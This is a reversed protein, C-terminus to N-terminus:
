RQIVDIESYFTNGWPDDNEAEFFDFLLYRFAGLTGSFDRISVGYQGGEDEPDRTDVFAIM